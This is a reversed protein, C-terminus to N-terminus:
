ETDRPTLSSIIAASLDPRNLADPFASVVARIDRPVARDAAIREHALDVLMRALEADQRERLRHIASLPVGVFVCKVIAQRYAEQGLHKAGYEQLAAAVLRLDNTRLGDEVLPLLTAGLGAVGLPEDLLHLARLVGRKEGADGYRYLEGVLASLELGRAGIAQLLLARIADDVCGHLMGHEDGDILPARGCRRSVAPFLATVASSSRKVEAIASALWTAGEDGLHENLAQENLTQESLEQINM